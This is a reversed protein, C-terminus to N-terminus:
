EVVLTRSTARNGFRLRCVYIGPPLDDVQWRLQHRGATEPGDLLTTVREGASNFVQVSVIGASPISFGITTAHHSPNPVSQELSLDAALDADVGAPANLDLYDIIGDLIAEATRHYDGNASCNMDEYTLALVRDGYTFWFWSEPFHTPTDDVWTVNYSWPEIGEPWHSRVDGIFRQEDASYDASTGTPDHYVFYRRCAIASHMNLAIDIPQGGNMLRKYEERLAGAEPQIPDKDWQRELDLGNANERGFGLEVGDPNYMPVIYFVARDRLTRATPSDSLLISIIENTVYSGQPEDPHTRAHIHIIRRPVIPPTTGTIRLQWLARNQVSAGISDITVYPSQSWGVLDTLLDVYGYGWNGSTMRLWPLTDVAHIWPRYDSYWASPGVLQHSAVPTQARASAAGLLMLLFVLTGRLRLPIPPQMAHLSPHPNLSRGTGSFSCGSIYASAAPRATHHSHYVFPEPVLDPARSSTPTTRTRFQTLGGSATETAAISASPIKM